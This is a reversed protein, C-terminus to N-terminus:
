ALREVAEAVLEGIPLHQPCRAEALKYDTRLLKNRVKGPIQAFLERARDQEGYSNYCMLYWMIDSVYPTDPLASDCLKYFANAIVFYPM